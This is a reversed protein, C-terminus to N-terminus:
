TVVAASDADRKWLLLTLWVMFLRVPMPLDTPLDVQVDRALAREPSISGTVSDAKRLVFKRRFASEAELTYMKGAHHVTFSRHLASPKEAYATIQGNTELIFPGSFRGQRYIRYISDSFRLAGAERLCGFSLEAIERRDDLVSFTWSWWKRPKAKLTM